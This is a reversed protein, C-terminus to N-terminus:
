LTYHNYDFIIYACQKCPFLKSMCLCTPLEANLLDYKKGTSGLVKYELNKDDLKPKTCEIFFVEAAFSCPGRLM